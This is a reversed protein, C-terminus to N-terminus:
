NVRVHYTVISLRSMLEVFIYTFVDVVVVVVVDLQIMGLIVENNGGLGIALHRVVSAFREPVGM